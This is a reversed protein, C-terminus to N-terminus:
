PLIRSSVTQNCFFCCSPLHSSTALGPLIPLIRQWRFLQLLDVVPFTMTMLSLSMSILGSSLTVLALGQFFPKIHPDMSTAQSELVIERGTQCTTKPSGQQQAWPWFSMSTHSPHISPNYVLPGLLTHSSAVQM